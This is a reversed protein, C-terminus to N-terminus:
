SVNAKAQDILQRTVNLGRAFDIGAHAVFLSIFCVHKSNKKKKVQIIAKIELDYKIIEQACIRVHVDASSSMNTKIHCGQLDLFMHGSFAPSAINALCKRDTLIFCSIGDAYSRSFIHRLFSVVGPYRDNFTHRVQELCVLLCINEYM